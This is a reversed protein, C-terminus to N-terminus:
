IARDRLYRQMIETINRLDTRSQETEEGCGDCWELLVLEGAGIRRLLDDVQNADGTEGDMPVSHRDCM